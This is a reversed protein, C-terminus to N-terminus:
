NLRTANIERPLRTAWLPKMLQGDSLKAWVKMDCVAAAVAQCLRDIRAQDYTELIKQAAHAKKVLEEIMAIEEPTVERSAM